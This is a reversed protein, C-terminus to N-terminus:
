PKLGRLRRYLPTWEAVKERMVTQGPIEEEGFNNQGWIMLRGAYSSANIDAHAAVDDNDLMLYFKVKYLEWEYPKRGRKTSAIDPILELAEVPSATQPPSEPWTKKVVPLWFFLAYPPTIPAIDAARPTLIWTNNIWITLEYRARLEPTLLFTRRSQSSPNARRNHQEIKTPLQGENVAVLLDRDAIDRHGVQGRIYPVVKSLPWWNSSVLPLMDSRKVNKRKARKAV